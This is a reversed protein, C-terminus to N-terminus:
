IIINDNNYFSQKETYKKDKYRKENAAKSKKAIYKDKYLGSTFHAANQKNNTTLLQMVSAIFKHLVTKNSFIAELIIDKNVM